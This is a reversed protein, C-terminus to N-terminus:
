LAGHVRYRSRSAGMPVAYRWQPWLYHSNLFTPPAATASPFFSPPHHHHQQARATYMGRRWGSAMRGMWRDVLMRTPLPYASKWGAWGPPKQKPRSPPPVAASPSPIPHTTSDDVSGGGWASVWWRTAEKRRARCRQRTGVGKRGEVRGRGLLFHQALPRGSLMRTSDSVTTMRSIVRSNHLPSLNHVGTSPVM